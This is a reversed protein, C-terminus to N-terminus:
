EPGITPEADTLPDVLKKRIATVFPAALGSDSSHRSLFETVNQGAQRAELESPHGSRFGTWQSILGALQPRGERWGGACWEACDEIWSTLGVKQYPAANDVRIFDYGAATLADAFVDGITAARYLIAIDGLVRGPKEVLARTILGGVVYAAQDNLGGKREV